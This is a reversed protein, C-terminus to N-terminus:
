FGATALFSLVFHCLCHISDFLPFYNQVIVEGHICCALVLSAVLTLLTAYVLQLSEGKYLEIFDVLLGCQLMFTQMGGTLRRRGPTTKAKNVPCGQAASLDDSSIKIWGEDDMDTPAANGRCEIPPDKASRKLRGKLNKPDTGTSMRSRSYHSPASPPPPVDRCSSAVSDPPATGVDKSLAGAEGAASSCADGVDGDDGVGDDGLSVDGSIM